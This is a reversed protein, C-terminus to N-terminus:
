AQILKLVRWLAEESEVVIPFYLFSSSKGGVPPFERMNSSRKLSIGESDGKVKVGSIERFQQALDAFKPHLGIEGNLDGGPAGERRLYLLEHSTGSPLGFRFFKKLPGNAYEESIGDSKLLSYIDEANM